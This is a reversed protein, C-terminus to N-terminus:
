SSFGACCCDPIQTPHSRNGENEYEAVFCYTQPMGIPLFQGQNMKTETDKPNSIAQIGLSINKSQQCSRHQTPISKLQNPSTQIPKSIKPYRSIQIRTSFGNPRDGSRIETHHMGPLRMKGPIARGQKKASM